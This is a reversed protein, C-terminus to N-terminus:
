RSRSPAPRTGRRRPSQLWLMLVGVGLEARGVETDESMRSISCRPRSRM